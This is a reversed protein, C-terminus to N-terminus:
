SVPTIKYQEITDGYIIACNRGSEKATYLAKDAMDYMTEPDTSTGCQQMFIGISISMFPLVSSKEHPINLGKILEQLWLVVTDIHSVENEFWLLAFEEGGVRASYVDHTDKMSNLVRGIARLCNDGMPHGYHDNYYKFFDIDIIAICLWNDSTRYNSLYRKFTSQFDRRNRLQTLEDIISQDLYSNREDELMVASLELGLRLKSIHWNFYLSIIGAILVNVIDLIWNEFSKLSITSVIFCIMAGATLCLNFLPSNIFMLLACIMFCLFITALKDQSSWVSLYIGFIMVNAYFVTTLIYTFHNNIYVTQMKYHALIALLLAIIGALFCIGAKIIDEKEFIISLLSFCGAFVAVVTNAQRLTLLNNPFIKNLCEYYRERGLSYYRWSYLKKPM